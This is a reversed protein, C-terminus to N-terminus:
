INMFLEVELSELDELDKKLFALRERALKLERKRILIKEKIPKEDWKAKFYKHYVERHWELDNSALRAADEVARYSM